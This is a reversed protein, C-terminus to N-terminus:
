KKVEKINIVKNVESVWYTAIYAFGEDERSLDLSMGLDKYIGVTLHMCEHIIQLISTDEFYLWHEGDQIGLYYGSKTLPYEYKYNEKLYEMVEPKEGTVVVVRIQYIPDKLRTIKM